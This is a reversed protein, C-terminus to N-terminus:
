DSERSKQCSDRTEALYPSVVRFWSRRIEAEEPSQIVSNVFQQWQPDGQPILMGYSDCTLPQEPILEYGEPPLLQAVAGGLLLIGDDAFADIQGQEVAQVGRLLGTTGVYERVEAQPYQDEILRAATTERLLGVTVESLSGDLQLRDEDKSKILLQIGTTFFPASFAVEPYGSIDRITNPGCELYTTRNEILNFRNFLTSQYLRVLFADRELTKNIKQQLLAFFDLCYGQLSGDTARYGFPIADARVAVKILGTRNIEQLITEARASVPVSVSVTLSSIVVLRFLLKKM